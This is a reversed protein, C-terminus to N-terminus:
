EEHLPEPTADRRVEELADRMVPLPPARDWWRQFAEAGQRVLMEGGDAAPMGLERARRVLRTETPRYVLDLVPAPERLVELEIPLPDADALGLSTSNVVLEFPVETVSELSAATRARGAGLAEVLMEAKALTRNWVVVEDVEDELLGILAARAAGGAGLLLVKRGSAPEGLLTEVAGRFGQVDTNDGCIRGGDSWFTNCAGTLRVVDTPHDVTRAAEEKHPLTVNGGGGARAIGRLLGAVDSAECRLALYAGDLGMSEIAANQIRPSLSHGVPNGLLALLRTAAGIM